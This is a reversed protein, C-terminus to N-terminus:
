LCCSLPGARYTQRHLAICTLERRADCASGSEYRKEEMFTNLTKDLKVKAEETSIMMEEWRTKRERRKKGNFIWFKDADILDLWEVIVGLSDGCCLLLDKTSSGLLNMARESFFGSEPHYDRKELDLYKQSEFVGVASEEQSHNM